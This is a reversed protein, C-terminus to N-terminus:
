RGRGELEEKVAVLIPRVVELRERYALALERPLQAESGAAVNLAAADNSVEIEHTLDVMYGELTTVLDRLEATKAEALIPALGANKFAILKRTRWRARSPSTENMVLLGALDRPGDDLAAVLQAHAAADAAFRSALAEFAMVQLEQRHEYIITYGDDPTQASITGKALVEYRHVPEGRVGVELVYRSSLEPDWETWVFLFPVFIVSIGAFFWRTEASYVRPQTLHDMQVRAELWAEEGGSTPGELGAVADLGVKRLSAVLRETAAEDQSMDKHIGLYDVVCRLPVPLPGAARAEVAPPDITPRVLEHGCGSLLVVFLCVVVNRGLRHM